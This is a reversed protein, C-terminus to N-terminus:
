PRTLLLLGGILLPSASLLIRASAAKAARRDTARIDRRISM